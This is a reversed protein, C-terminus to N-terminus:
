QKENLKVNKRVTDAKAAKAEKEEEQKKIIKLDQDLDQDTEIVV